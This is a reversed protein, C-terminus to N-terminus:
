LSRDVPATATAILEQQMRRVVDMIAPDFHTGSESFMIALAERPDIAPKYVRTSVLADYVDAVAMIRAPLPIEEGALGQPYGQGNWHEHHSMAIEEAVRLFTADEMGAFLTEIMASGKTTHVKMAEFEEPTLKGPKQLITDSVAIKGVDHLPAANAIYAIDAETLRNVFREDKQMAHALMTVYTRTRAVHEGTSVDRTEILTALAEIVRNQMRDRLEMEDKIKQTLEIQRALMAANRRNIGIAVAVVALICLLRPMVYHSFLEFMRHPTALELRAALSASTEVTKLLNRDPAGLFFSGYVSIPVMLVSAAVIWWFLRRRGRYQAALLPPVAMMIAVHFSLAVSILGIGLFIVTIILM